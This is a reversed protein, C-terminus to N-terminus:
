VVEVELESVKGIDEFDSDMTILKEGNTICIAAIM